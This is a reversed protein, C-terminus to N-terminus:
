LDSGDKGPQLSPLKQLFDTTDKLYSPVKAVLPQLHYDVYESIRETPAGCSSVITSQSVELKTGGHHNRALKLTQNTVFCETIFTLYRQFSRVTNKASNGLSRNTNCM